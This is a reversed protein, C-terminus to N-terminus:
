RRAQRVVLAIASAWLIAVVGFMAWFTWAGVWSPKVVAFRDAVEPAVDWWTPRGPLLWDFRIVEPGVPRPGARPTRNAAFQLRRAGLNRVCVTADHLARPQPTVPVALPAHDPYGGPVRGTSLRRGGATVTVEVPQGRRGFTGAYIRVHSAKAPVNQGPACRQGRPPVPFAVASIEV